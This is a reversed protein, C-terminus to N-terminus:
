TEPERLTYGFGRVTQILRSAGKAEIKSRLQFIFVDLTNSEIERDIGWAAEILDGRSVVRGARRMLHELIVYETRTLVLAKDARHVEHTETNLTLDAIQLTSADEVGSRRAMARLRATLVDFSFPKTLYDDAGMDLGRVIDPVSDRATLMLIPTRIGTVRLRKAVQLGDMGPLMVDLVIADFAMAQAKELGKPGNMVVEVSHGQSLLGRRLLEAMRADDEVLLIRM